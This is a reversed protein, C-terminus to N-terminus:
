YFIEVAWKVEGGGGEERFIPSGNASSNQKGEYCLLTPRSLNGPGNGHFELLDNIPISM